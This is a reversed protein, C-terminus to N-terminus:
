KGFMGQLKLKEKALDDHNYNIQISRTMDTKRGPHTRQILVVLNSNNKVLIQHSKRDQTGVYEPEAVRREEKKSLYNFQGRFNVLILSLLPAGLLIESENVKNKGDVSVEKSHIIYRFHHFELSFLSFMERM